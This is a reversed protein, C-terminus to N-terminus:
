DEDELLRVAESLDDLSLHSYRQTQNLNSHGLLKSIKYLSVGKKALWSAYTHRGTHLTGGRVGARQAASNFRRYISSYSLPFPTGLHRRRELIELSVRNLPLWRARSKQERVYLQGDSFDEWRLNLLEGIRLGTHLIMRLYDQADADLFALLRRTEERTFWRTRGNNVRPFGFERVANRELHGDEIAQKLVGSLVALSVRVTAPKREKLRKVQWERLDAVTIRSVDRNGWLRVWYSAYSRYSPTTVSTLQLFRAVARRLSYAVM